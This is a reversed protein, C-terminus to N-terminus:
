GQLKTIRNNLHKFFLNIEKKSSPYIQILNHHVAELEKTILSLNNIYNFNPWTKYKAIYDNIVNDVNTITAQQATSDTIKKAFYAIYLFHIFNTSKTGYAQAEPAATPTATDPKDGESSHIRIIEGSTPLPNNNGSITTTGDPQIFINGKDKIEYYKFINSAVIDSVNIKLNGAHPYDLKAYTSTEPIVVSKGAALTEIVSRKSRVTDGTDYFTLNSIDDDSNNTLVATTATLTWPSDEIQYSSSISITTTTILTTGTTDMVLVSTTGTPLELAETSALSIAQSNVLTSSGNITAYLSVTVTETSSNLIYYNSFVNSSAVDSVPITITGSLSEIAFTAYTATSPIALSSQGGIAMSTTNLIAGSSNHFILDSINHTTDNTLLAGITELSWEGSSEIIQYSSSTTIYEQNIVNSSGDNVTVQTTGTLLEVSQNASLTYTSSNLATNSGNIYGYLSINVAYSSSNYLFYNSFVNSSVSDSVPITLSGAQSAISFTTYTATSPIEVSLQAPISTTSLSDYAANYFTISAINENSNNTLSSCLAMSPLLLTLFFVIFRKM